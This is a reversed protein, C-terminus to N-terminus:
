PQSLKLEEIGDQSAVVVYVDAPDTASWHSVQNDPGRLQVVATKGTIAVEQGDNLLIHAAKRADDLNGYTYVRTLGPM